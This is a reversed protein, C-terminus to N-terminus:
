SLKMLAAGSEDVERATAIMKTRIDFLRQASIMEVMVDSTVVNSQELSAPQVRADDTNPLVGGGIVRFLGDLAKEIKSGAPSALKIRDILQPPQGPADPSAALVSGDPAITITSGLPVSIPGSNGLVPREDGNQLVGSPSVSLDGRRTYAEGGDDTQVALLADGTVAIDLARGTPMIAGPSMNAGHVEGDILARAEIPAGKLTVPTSYITEARFGITQANAMNNAIVRQRTTSDTMGSMATWIMRDM